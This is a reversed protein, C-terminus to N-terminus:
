SCVRSRCCFVVVFLIVLIGVFVVSGAVVLVVSAWDDFLDSGGSADTGRDDLIGVVSSIGAAREVLAFSSVVACKCVTHTANTEAVICGEATWGAAAADWHACNPPPVSSNRPSAHSLAAEVLPSSLLTAASRSSGSERGNLTLSMLQSALRPM